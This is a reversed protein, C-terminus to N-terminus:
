LLQSFNKGILLRLFHEVNIVVVFVGVGVGDSDGSVGVAAVFDLFSIQLVVVQAM